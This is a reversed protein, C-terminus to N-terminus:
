ARTTTATWARAYFSGPLPQWLFMNTTPHQGDAGSGMNANDRGSYNPFGGSIAASQANGNVADGALTPKGYNFQQREL